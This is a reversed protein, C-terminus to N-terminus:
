YFCSVKHLYQFLIQYYYLNCDGWVFLVALITKGDSSFQISEVTSGESYFTKMWKQFYYTGDYSAIIPSWSSSSSLHTEITKDSTDGGLAIDGNFLSTDMSRLTMPGNQGSLFLPFPMKFCYLLSATTALTMLFFAVMSINTM